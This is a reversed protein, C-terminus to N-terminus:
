RRSRMILSPGGDFNWSSESMREVLLCLWLSCVLIAPPAVHHLNNPHSRGLFYTFTVIGAGTSGALAVFLQRREQVLVPRQIAVLAILLASAFLIGGLAFGPSWPTILV